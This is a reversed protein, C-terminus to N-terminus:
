VTEPEGPAPRRHGLAALRSLLIASQIPKSIYDDMGAAIYHEKAGTMAHATLAIIYVDRKPADMARIKAVAEVGSLEAMQIDMLVVDYDALRVADVAQHGNEVVKVEHGAKNLLAVAFKQNVKNDEALLVRLRPSPLRVEDPETVVPSTLAIPREGAPASYLTALCAQLDRQRVPKDLAADVLEEAGIERAHPGASSVLVLKAEAIAPMKRIRRALSEGTMGPMMQDLFVIQYPKGAHWARELEAVAGFGDGATTVDMGLHSLQRSIIELNMELDDVALARIGTLDVPFIQPVAIPETLIKMPVQFWFKSGQGVRSVVGIEGGMMEVLQKSIALGLGTGGFRRTFSSDAQTFKHFLRKRVEESIGVGTDTIEFRVMATGTPDNDEALSPTVKVSVIGADTFKIGNGVLNLLIQRLRTPDGRYGANLTPDIYVGLEIGKEQAKATLLTTVSEVTDVLNFDISELEVKGADLKSIDLIDNIVGLLAEASEQVVEAYKRQEDDLSTNLLLGNMGIIGNMPTRIEHSMNALFESKIQNARIAEVREVETQLSKIIAQQMVGLARLLEATEDQGRVDILNDLKGGAIATAISAARRIPPVIMYRLMTAIALALLAATVVGFLTGTLANDVLDDAHTRFAFGDAAYRQVMKALEGQLVVLRSRSGPAAPDAAIRDLAARQSQAFERTKDTASREIAVDMVDLLKSLQKRSAEDGFTDGQNSLLLRQVGEEVRHAYDTGVFSKDYIDAALDGMRRTEYYGFVGVAITILVM